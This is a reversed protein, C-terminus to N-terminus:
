PTAGLHLALWLHWALAVGMVVVMATLVYLFPDRM